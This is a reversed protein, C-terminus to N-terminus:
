KPFRKNLEKNRRCKLKPRRQKIAMMQLMMMMREILTSQSTKCDFGNTADSADLGQMDEQPVMDNFFSMDLEEESPVLRCIPSSFRM